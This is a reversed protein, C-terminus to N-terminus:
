EKPLPTFLNSVATSATSQNRFKTYTRRPTLFEASSPKSGTRNQRIPPDPYSSLESLTTVTAKEGTNSRIIIRGDTTWTSSILKRSKLFRAKAYVKARQSTLAENLFLKPLAPHALSKPSTTSPNVVSSPQTEAPPQDDAVPKKFLCFRAEYIQARIRILDRFRSVENPSNEDDPPGKCIVGADFDNKVCNDTHEWFTGLKCQAINEEHGSFKFDSLWLPLEPLASGFVLNSVAYGGSYGLQRCIVNPEESATLGGTLRVPAKEDSFKDSSCVVGVDDGHTCSAVSQSTLPSGTCTAFTDNENCEIDDYWIPGRGEEFYANQIPVGYCQVGDTIM